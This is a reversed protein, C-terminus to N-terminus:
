RQESDKGLVVAALRKRLTAVLSRSGAAQAPFGFLVSQVGSTRLDRFVHVVLWGEGAKSFVVRHIATQTRGLDPKAQWYVVSGGGVGVLALLPTDVVSGGIRLTGLEELLVRLSTGVVARDRALESATFSEPYHFLLAADAFRGSELARALSEVLAQPDAATGGAGTTSLISIRM